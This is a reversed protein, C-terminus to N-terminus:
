RGCAKVKTTSVQSFTSPCRRDRFRVPQGNLGCCRRRVELCFNQMQPLYVARYRLMEYVPAPFIGKKVLAYFRSRSLGVMAAMESVAVPKAYLSVSGRTTWDRNGKTM